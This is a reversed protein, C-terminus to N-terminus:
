VIDFTPRSKDQKRKIIQVSPVSEKEEFNQLIKYMSALGQSNKMIARWTIVGDDLEKQMKNITDVTLNLLKLKGYNAERHTFGLTKVYEADTYLSKDKGALIDLGTEFAAKKQKAWGNTNKEFWGSTFFSDPKEPFQSKMFTRVEKIDSAIYDLQLKEWDIKGKM